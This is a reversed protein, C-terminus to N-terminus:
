GAKHYILGPVWKMVWAILRWRRTVYVRFKRAEISQYIQKAAKEVSAVWFRKNGQGMKTNVFGPQVDTIAIGAKTKMSKMHLGEFYVSQYAKSASYAPAWSNGRWSAISSINAIQGGGKQLFYNYAWNVIETFGNVNTDMTTKDIRWDLDKSVTGIGACIILLDMGNLTAVLSELRTVNENGTVDFCATHIQNPFEQQLSDLLQQRRGTAGVWAGSQAYLRALERGMGSTAGVIILKKM